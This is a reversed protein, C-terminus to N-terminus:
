KAKKIDVLTVKFLLVSNPAIFPGAEHEGYALNAPIALEFESGKSMLQLAEIWGPIMNELTFDVPDKQEDFVKGDITTGKYTVKIVDGLTAKPGKGEKIVKYQLGSKTTVVGDKKGNAALFEEGKKLNEQADKLQKANMGEAVKQELAQLTEQLEDDKLAVHDKIADYFGALIIEKDINGLYEGQTKQLQSVQQGLVAGIAYSAKQDFNAKSADFSSQEKDGNCASLTMVAAAVLSLSFGKVLKSNM